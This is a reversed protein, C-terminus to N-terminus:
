FLAVSSNFSPCITDPVTNGYRSNNDSSNDNINQSKEESPQWTYARDKDLMYVAKSIKQKRSKATYANMMMVSPKQTIYPEGLDFIYAKEGIFNVYFAGYAGTRQYWNVIREYRDQELVLERYQEYKPDRDKIEVIYLRGEKDRFWCDYALRDNAPEGYEWGYYQCMAKFKERGPRDLDKFNKDYNVYDM